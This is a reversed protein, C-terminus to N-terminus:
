TTSKALKLVTVGTWPADLKRRSRAGSGSQDVVLDFGGEVFRVLIVRSGEFCLGGSWKMSSPDFLFYRPMVHWCVVFGCGVSACVDSTNSRLVGAKGAEDGPATEGGGM